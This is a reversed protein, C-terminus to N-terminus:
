DYFPILSSKPQKQKKKSWILQIKAHPRWHLLFVHEQIKAAPKQKAKYLRRLSFRTTKQMRLIRFVFCLKASFSRSMALCVGTFLVRHSIQLTKLLTWKQNFYRLGKGALAAFLRLRVNTIIFLASGKNYYGLWALGKNYTSTEGQNIMVFSRGAAVALVKIESLFGCFTLKRCRILEFINIKPWFLNLHHNWM